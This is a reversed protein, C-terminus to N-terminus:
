EEGNDKKGYIMVSGENFLDGYHDMHRIVGDTGPGRTFNFTEMVASAGEAYAIAKSWPMYPSIHEMEEQSSTKYRQVFVRYQKEESM